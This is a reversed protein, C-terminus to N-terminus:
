RSNGLLNEGKLIRTLSIPSMSFLGPFYWKRSDPLYEFMEECFASLTLPLEGRLKWSNWTHINFFNFTSLFNIEVFLTENEESSVVLVGYDDCGDTGSQRYVWWRFMLGERKGEGWTSYDQSRWSKHTRLGIPHLYEAGVSRMEGMGGMGLNVSYLSTTRGEQLFEFNGHSARFKILM